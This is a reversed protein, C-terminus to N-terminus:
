LIFKIANQIKFNLKKYDIMTNNKYMLGYDIKNFEGNEVLYYNEYKSIQEPIGGIKPAIIRIGLVMAEDITVPTGEYKSLLVMANCNAMIPYPNSMHGLFFVEKEMGLEKNKKELEERQPGDGIVYWSFRVKNEQMCKAQRLLEDIRKERDVRAVTVLNLHQQDIELPCPCKSLKLINDGDIMNPIVVIKKAVNPLKEAMGKKCYESLVVIVDFGTYIANDHRTVAKSWESFTSWRAYDTHIWQIKRPKKLKSVLRRLKSAESVVIISDFEELTFKLQSYVIHEFFFNGAGCRLSLAYLIRKLKKVLSYKRNYIVNKFSEAYIETAKWLNSGLIHDNRLFEINERPEVLSLLYVDYEKALEKMQFLTVKKAGSNYNIDDMVYLIKKM